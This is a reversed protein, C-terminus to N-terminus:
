VIYSVLRVREELSFVGARGLQWLHAIAEKTMM